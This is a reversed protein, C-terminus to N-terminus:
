SFLRHLWQAIGASGRRGTGARRRMPRHLPAPVFSLPLEVPRQREELLDHLRKIDADRADLERALIQVTEELRRLHAAIAPEAAPPARRPDPCPPAPQSEEPLEVLWRFHDQYPERRAFLSGSRIRRRIAERSVGMRRAAENIPIGSTM